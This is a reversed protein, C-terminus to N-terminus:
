FSKLAARAVKLQGTPSLHFCDAAIDAGDFLVEATATVHRFTIKVGRQAAVAQIKQVSRAEAERYARVRNALFGTREDADRSPDGFLTPCFAAPNPPMFLGFAFPYEATRPKALADQVARAHYGNARLARCTTAAGFADVPKSLIGEDNLLQLVGLYSLLRVETGGPAPTGNTLLYAFGADLAEEFAQATTVQDLSLGCLDNGTFMILVREPLVGDTAALVRDLQRPIHEVRAGDEGAILIDQAPVGLGMGMLYGWSYEETDLYTRSLVQLANRYVWDPGGFFERSTPWLRRPPALEGAQPVSAEPPLDERRPAVSVKGTFVRWLAEGDYVLAPHSAAGTSLSDGLVAVRGGSEARVGGATMAILSALLALRM